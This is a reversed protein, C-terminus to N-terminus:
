EWRSPDALYELNYKLLVYAEHLLGRSALRM